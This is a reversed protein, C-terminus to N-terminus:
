GSTQYRAALRATTECDCARKSVQGARHSPSVVLPLTWGRGIRRALLSTWGCCVWVQPPRDWKHHWWTVPCPLNQFPKCHSLVTVGGTTRCPGKLTYGNSRRHLIPRSPASVFWTNRYLAGSFVLYPGWFFYVVSEWMHECQTGHHMATKM